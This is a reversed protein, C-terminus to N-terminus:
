HMAFWIAKAMQCHFFLHCVLELCGCGHVYDVNYVAFNHTLLTSAIPLWHNALNWLFFKLRKHLKSTWLYKWWLFAHFNDWFGMKYASTISFCDNNNECWILNEELNFNTCPIKCINRTTDRDFLYQLVKLNRNGDSLRLANVMGCVISADRSIPTPQFNLNNSGMLRGM